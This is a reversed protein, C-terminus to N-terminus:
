IKPRDIPVGKMVKEMEEKNLIEYEVLAKALRELEVSYTTLIQTARQEASEVLERIESEVLAKTSPSLKTLDEEYSVPGVKDSMGNSIVM